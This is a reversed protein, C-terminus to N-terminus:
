SREQALFNEISGEGGAQFKKISGQSMLRVRVGSFWFNQLMYMCKTAYNDLQLRM